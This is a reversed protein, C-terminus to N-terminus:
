KSALKDVNIEVFYSIMMYANYLLAYDLLRIAAYINLDM